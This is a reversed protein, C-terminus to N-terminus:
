TWERRGGEWGVHEIEAGGWIIGVLGTGVGGWWVCVCVSSDQSVHLQLASDATSVKLQRARGRTAEPLAWPFKQRNPFLDGAQSSVEFVLVAVSLPSTQGQQAGAVPVGSRRARGQQALCHPPPGAAPAGHSCGAAKCAQSARMTRLGRIGRHVSSGLCSPGETRM